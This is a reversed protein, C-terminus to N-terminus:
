CLLTLANPFLRHFCMSQRNIAHIDQSPDFLSVTDGDLHLPKREDRVEKNFARATEVYGDHALYQAILEQILLTEDHATDLTDVSTKNIDEKVRDRQRQIANAYYWLSM